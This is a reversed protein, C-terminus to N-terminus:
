EDKTIAMPSKWQEGIEHVPLSVLNTKSHITRENSMHEGRVQQVHGQDNAGGQGSVDRVKLGKVGSSPHAPRKSPLWGANVRNLPLFRENM